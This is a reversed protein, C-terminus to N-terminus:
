TFNVKNAPKSSDPNFIVKWHFAVKNVKKLDGKLENASTCVGHFCLFLLIHM